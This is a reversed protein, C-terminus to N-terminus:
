MRLWPARQTPLGFSTQGRLKFSYGIGKLIASRPSWFIALCLRLEPIMDYHDLATFSSIWCYNVMSAPFYSSKKPPHSGLKVWNLAGKKKERRRMGYAFTVTGPAGFGHRLALQHLYLVSAFLRM